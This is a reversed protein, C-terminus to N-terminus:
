PGVHMNHFYSSGYGWMAVKREGIGDYDIECADRKGKKKRM